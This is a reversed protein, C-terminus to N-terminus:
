AKEIRRRRSRVLMSVAVSGLLAASSPEPVAAIRRNSSFGVVVGNFLIDVPADGGDIITGASPPLGDFQSDFTVAGTTFFAGTALLEFEFFDGSVQYDGSLFSSPDGTAFGPDNPDQVVNTISGSFAAEGAATLTGFRFEGFAADSGTFVGTLSPINITTGIQADRNLILSGEGIVNRTFEAGPNVATNAFLTIDQIATAIIETQGSVVLAGRASPSAISLAVLSFFTILRM